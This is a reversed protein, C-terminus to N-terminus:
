PPVNRISEKFAELDKRDQEKQREEAERERQFGKTLAEQDRQQNIMLKEMEGPPGGGWNPPSSGKRIVVIDDETHLVGDPGASRLELVSVGLDDVKVTSLVDRGYADKLNPQYNGGGWWKVSEKLRSETRERLEQETPGCGSVGTSLLLVFIAREM